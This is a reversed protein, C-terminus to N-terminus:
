VDSGPAIVARELRRLSLCADTKGVKWPLSGHRDNKKPSDGGDDDEAAAGIPENVQM